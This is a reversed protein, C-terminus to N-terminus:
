AKFHEDPELQGFVLQAIVYRALRRMDCPSYVHGEKRFKCHMDIMRQVRKNGCTRQRGTKVPGIHGDFWRAISRM